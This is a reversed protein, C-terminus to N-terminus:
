PYPLSPVVEQLDVVGKIQAGGELYNDPQIMEMM